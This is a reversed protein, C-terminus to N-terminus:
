IDGMMRKYAGPMLMKLAFGVGPRLCTISPYKVPSFGISQKFEELRKDYSKIAYHAKTIGPVNQASAVFCYMLADNCNTRLLDSRSAITDVFATDGILKAILFGAVRGSARERGTIITTGPVALLEQWTEQLYAETVQHKWGTRETFDAWIDRCEKALAGDVAAVKEIVCERLGKRIANRRKADIADASYQSLDQITNIVQSSNGFSGDTLYQFGLYTKILPLGRVPRAKQLLVDAPWCLGRKVQYWWSGDEIRFPKSTRAGPKELFYWWFSTRASTRVASCYEDVAASRLSIRECEIPKVKEM